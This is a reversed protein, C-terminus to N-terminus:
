HESVSSLLSNNRTLTIVIAYKTVYGLAIISKFVTAVAAEDCYQVGPYYIRSSL